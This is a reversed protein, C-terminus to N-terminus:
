FYKLLKQLVLNSICGMMEIQQEIDLVFTRVLVDVENVFLIRMEQLLNTIQM